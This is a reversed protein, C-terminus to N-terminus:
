WLQTERQEFRVVRSRKTRARRSSLQSFKLSVPCSGLDTERSLSFLRQGAYLESQGENRVSHKCSHSHRWSRRAQRLTKRIKQEVSESLDLLPLGARAALMFVDGAVALLQRESRLLTTLAVSLLRKGFSEIASFAESKPVAVVPSLSQTQDLCIPATQSFAKM